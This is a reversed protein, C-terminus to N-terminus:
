KKKKKKKMRKNNHTHTHREDIHIDITKRKRAIQGRENWRCRFCFEDMKKVSQFSSMKEKRTLLPFERM